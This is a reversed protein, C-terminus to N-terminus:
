FPISSEETQNGYDTTDVPGEEQTEVKESHTKAFYSKLYGQLERDLDTAIDNAETSVSNLKFTPMRFKISGKKGETYGTICIAQSLLEKRNEKQFEMWAGLAGGSFQLSGIKYSDVDKYAIYLNSVFKGGSAKVRDRIDGYFGTAIEGGKFSKVVLTEKKTDRVENAFIGSESSDHWGKITSLNDLLLFTFPLPVEINEKKEKDYYKLNGLSGNWEYWRTSPNPIHDNPQSRSM